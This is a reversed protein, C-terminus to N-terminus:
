RCYGGCPHGRHRHHHHHRRIGPQFSSPPSSYWIEDNPVPVWEGYAEYPNYCQPLPTSPYRYDSERVGHTYSGYGEYQHQYQSPQPQRPAERRPEHRQQVGQHHGRQNNKEKEHGPGWTSTKAQDRDMGTLNTKGNPNYDHHGSHPGALVKGPLFSFLIAVVFIVMLRKM